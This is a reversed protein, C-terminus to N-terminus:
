RQQTLTSEVLMTPGLKPSMLLGVSVTPKVRVFLASVHDFYVRKWDPSAYLVTALPEDRELLCSNIGYGRLVELAGPQLRSIHLYDALVGGREYVDGRGDIFVKQEPGQSWVLYGGFGYNNYTPGPVAHRQLYAVAEVPYQDSVKQKLQARSPFYHIIGAAVCAM